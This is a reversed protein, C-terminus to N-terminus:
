SERQWLESSLRCCACSRATHSIDGLPRVQGEWRLFGTRIQRRLGTGRDAIVPGAAQGAILHPRASKPSPAPQTMHTLLNWRYGGRTVQSRYERITGYRVRSRRLETSNQCWDRTLGQAEIPTKVAVDITICILFSSPIIGFRQHHCSLPEM